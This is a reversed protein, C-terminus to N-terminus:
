DARSIKVMGCVRRIARAIKRLWGKTKSARGHQGGKRKTAERGQEGVWQACGEAPMGKSLKSVAAGEDKKARLGKGQRADQDQNKSRTGSQYRTEARPGGTTKRRDRDKGQIFGSGDAEKCGEKESKMRVDDQHTTKHAM